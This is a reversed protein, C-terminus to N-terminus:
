VTIAKPAFVAVQSITHNISFQAKSAISVLPVRVLLHHFVLKLVTTDRRASRASMNVLKTRISVQHASELTAAETLVTTDLQALVQNQMQIILLTSFVPQHRLEKVARAFMVKM